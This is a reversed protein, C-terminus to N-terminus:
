IKAPPQLRLESGRGERGWEDRGGLRVQPQSLRLEVTMGLSQCTGAAMHPVHLIFLPVRKAPKRTPRSAQSLPRQDLVRKDASFKMRKPGSEPEECWARSQGEFGPESTVKEVFAEQSAEANESEGEYDTCPIQTKDLSRTERKVVKHHHYRRTKIYGWM